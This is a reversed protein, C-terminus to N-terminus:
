RAAARDDETVVACCVPNNEGHMEGGQAARAIKEEQDGAVPAERRRHLRVTQMKGFIGGRAPRRACRTQPEARADEGGGGM